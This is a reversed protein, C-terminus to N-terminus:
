NTIIELIELVKTTQLLKERHLTQHANPDNNFQNLQQNMRFTHTLSDRM